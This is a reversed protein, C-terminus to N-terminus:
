SISHYRETDVIYNIGAKHNDIFIKLVNL